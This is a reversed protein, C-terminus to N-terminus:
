MYEYCVLPTHTNSSCHFRGPKDGGIQISSMTESPLLRSGDLRPRQLIVGPCAICSSVPAAGDERVRCLRWMHRQLCVGAAKFPIIIHCRVLLWNILDCLCEWMTRRGPLYIPCKVKDCGCM